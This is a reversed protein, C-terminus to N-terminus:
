SMPIVLSGLIVKGLKSLIQALVSPNHASGAAKLGAIANSGQLGRRGRRAVNWGGADADADRDSGRLARQATTAGGRAIEDRPPKRV